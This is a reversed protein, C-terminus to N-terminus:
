RCVNVPLDGEPLGTFRMEAIDSNNSINYLFEASM